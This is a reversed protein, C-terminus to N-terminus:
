KTAMVWSPDTKKHSIWEETDPKPDFPGEGQECKECMFAIEGSETNGLCVHSECFYLGCGEGGYPQESHCVYSLGRDIEKNCDPHDCISPVGYGIDRKWKTDYGVSWGM